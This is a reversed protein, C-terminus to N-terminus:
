TEPWEGTTPELIDAHYKVRGRYPAFLKQPSRKRQLPVVKLVPRSHDTVILEEGSEELDRFIKLMQAKLKSKSITKATMKSLNVM